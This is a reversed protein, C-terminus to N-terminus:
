APFPNDGYYVEDVVDAEEVDEHAEDDLGVEM